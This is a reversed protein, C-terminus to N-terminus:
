GAKKKLMEGVQGARDQAVRALIRMRGLQGPTPEKQQWMLNLTENMLLGLAEVAVALERVESVQSPRDM